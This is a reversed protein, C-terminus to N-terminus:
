TLFCTMLFNFPLIFPDIRVMEYPLLPPQWQLTLSEPLERRAPDYNVFDGHYDM